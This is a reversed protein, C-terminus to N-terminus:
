PAGEFEARLGDLAGGWFKKMREGAAATKLKGHQVTVQSRGAGKPYFMVEVNTGDAWTIRLSKDETAKRVTYPEADLWKKAGLWAAYVRSVPAAITRSASV